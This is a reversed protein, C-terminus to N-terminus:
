IDQFIQSINKMTSTDKDHFIHTVIYGLKSMRKMIQLIEWGEM